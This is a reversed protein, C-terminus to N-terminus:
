RTSPRVRAPRVRQSGVDIRKSGQSMHWPNSLGWGPALAIGLLLVGTLTQVTTMTLKHLSRKGIIV